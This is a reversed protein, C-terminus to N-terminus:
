YRCSLNFRHVLEWIWKTLSAIEHSRLRYEEGLSTLIQRRTDIAVYNSGTQIHIHGTALYSVHINESHNLDFYILSFGQNFEDEYYVHADDCGIRTYFTASRPRTRYMSWLKSDLNPYYPLKNDLSPHYSM